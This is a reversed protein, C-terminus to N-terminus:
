PQLGLGDAINNFINDVLAPEAKYLLDAVNMMERTFGPVEAAIYEWDSAAPVLSPADADSVARASRALVVYDQQIDAATPEINEYVQRGLHPEHVRKSLSDYPQM